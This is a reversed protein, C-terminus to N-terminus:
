RVAMPGVCGRCYTYGSENEAGCQPCVVTSSGGASPGDRTRDDRGRDDSGTRDDTRRHGDIRTRDDTWVPNEVSRVEEAGARDRTTPTSSFLPTEEDDDSRLYRYVLLQVVAFALVYLVIWGWAGM